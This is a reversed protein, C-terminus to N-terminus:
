KVMVKKNKIVYIGRPLGELSMTKSRVKQGEVNYVDFPKGNDKIDEIVDPDVITLVGDVYKFDYNKSVGGKPSIYYIGPPSSRYADTYVKPKETLVDETENLKFGDYVLEFEPNDEWQNRTYSKATVMLPAKQVAMVGDAFIVNSNTVSGQECKILYHGAPSDASAEPYIHPEGILTGGYVSYEIIPNEDGYERSFGDPEVLIKGEYDEPFIWRYYPTKTLLTEKGGTYYYIEISFLGNKYMKINPWIGIKNYFEYDIIDYKITQINNANIKVTRYDSSGNAHTLLLTDGDEYMGWIERTIFKIEDDYTKEDNNKITLNISFNENNAVFMGVRNEVDLSVVSLNNIEAVPISVVQQSLVNGEGDVIKFQYDGPINPSFVYDNWGEQFFFEASEQPLLDTRLVARVTDNVHLFFCGKRMLGENKVVTSVKMDHGLKPLGNISISDVSHKSRDVYRNRLTMEDDTVTIDIYYKESNVVPKWEDEGVRFLLRMQYSGNPIDDIYIGRSTNFMCTRWDAFTWGNWFYSTTSKLEGNQYLGLAFDCTFTGFSGSMQLGPYVHLSPEFYWNKKVVKQEDAYMCDLRVVGKNFDEESFGEVMTFQGWYHHQTYADLSGQPVSVMVSELGLDDDMAIADPNPNLLCVNMLDGSVHHYYLSNNDLRNVSKPITITSAGINALGGKMIHKIGEHLVVKTLNYSLGFADEGITKVTGPIELSRIAPCWYFAKGSIEEVDDPIVLDIIEVGDVLLHERRFSSIPNSDGGQFDITCWNSLNGIDVKKLSDCRYFADKGITRLAKSMRITKLNSCYVFAEEGISTVEDPLNISILGSCAEFASKGISELNDPLDITTLGSCYHFAQNGINKVGSPIEVSILSRCNQFTFGKISTISDPLHVSTLNTCGMFVGSGLSTVSNPIYISTLGSCYPFADDDIIVVSNPIELSTLGSCNSLCWQGIRTVSNPIHISTLDVCGNFAHDGISTVNYSKGNYTVTSPISINGSYLTGMIYTVEATLASTDLNYNIGDILTGAKATFALLLFIISFIKQKMM